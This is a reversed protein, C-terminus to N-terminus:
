APCECAGCDEEAEVAVPLPRREPGRAPPIGACLREIAIWACLVRGVEGLLRLDAREAAEDVASALQAARHTIMQGLAGAWAAMHDRIFATLAQRCIEAGESVPDDAHAAALRELLTAVFDLEVVIHDPRQPVPGRLAVGFARYFGAIDAMEQARHFADRSRLHETECPPCLKSIVLGFVHNMARQRRAAELGLWSAVPEFDVTAPPLEGRQLDAVGLAAHPMAALRWARTLLGRAPEPLPHPAADRPQALAAALAAAVVHRAQLEATAAAPEDFM